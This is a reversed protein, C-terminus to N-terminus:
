DLRLLGFNRLSSKFSKKDLRLQNSFANFNNPGYKKDLRLMSNFAPNYNAKKDLRLMNSAFSPSYSGGRKDLRLMSAFNSNRNYPSKKDLRLMSNFSYPNYNSKKDLRLLNSFKKDLRLFNDQFPARKDLRLMNAFNQHNKIAKKDLRLMSNFSPNYHASKKDLRLMSNFSPNYHAKKDLRLMNNFGYHSARKESPHFVLFRNGDDDDIEAYNNEDEEPEGYVLADDILEDQLENPDQHSTVDEKPAVVKNDNTGAAPVQALICAPLLLIVTFPYVWLNSTNSSIGIRMIYKPKKISTSKPCHSVRKQAGM